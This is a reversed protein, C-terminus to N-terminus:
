LNLFGVAELNLIPILHYGIGNNIRCVSGNGQSICIIYLLSTINFSLEPKRKLNIGILLCFCLLKAIRDLHVISGIQRNGTSDIIGTDCLIFIKIQYLIGPSIKYLFGICCSILNIQNTITNQYVNSCSGINGQLVSQSLACKGVVATIFM